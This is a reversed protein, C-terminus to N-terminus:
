TRVAHGFQNCPAGTRRNFLEFGNGRAIGYGFFKNGDDPIMGPIHQGSYYRAVRAGTAAAISMADFPCSTWYTAGNELRHPNM